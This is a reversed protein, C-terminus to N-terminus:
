KANDLMEHSAFGCMQVYILVYIIHILTYQM